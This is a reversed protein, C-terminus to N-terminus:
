YNKYNKRSFETLGKQNQLLNESFSERPSVKSAQQLKSCAEM